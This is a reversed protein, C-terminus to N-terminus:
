NNYYDIDPHSAAFLADVPIADWAGSQVWESLIKRQVEGHLLPLVVRAFYGRAQAANGRAAVQVWEEDLAIAEDAGGELHAMGNWRSVRLRTANRTPMEQLIGGHKRELYERASKIADATTEGLLHEVSGGVVVSCVYEDISPVFSLYGTCVLGPAPGVLWSFRTHPTTVGAGYWSIHRARLGAGRLSDGVGVEARTCDLLPAGVM